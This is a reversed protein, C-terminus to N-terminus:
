RPGELLVAVEMPPMTDTVVTVAEGMLDGLEMEARLHGFFRDPHWHATRKRPVVDGEVKLRKDAAKNLSAGVILKTTQLESLTVFRSINWALQARQSPFHGVLCM